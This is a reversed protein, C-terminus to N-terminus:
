FVRQVHEARKDGEMHMAPDMQRMAEMHGHSGFGVDVQGPMMANESFYTNRSLTQSPLVLLWLLGAIVLLHGIHASHKRALQLLPSTKEGQGSLVLAM